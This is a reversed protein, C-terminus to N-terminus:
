RCGGFPAPLEGQDFGYMYSRGKILFPPKYCRSRRRDDHWDRGEDFYVIEPDDTEAHDALQEAMRGQGVIIRKYGAPSNVVLNGFSDAYARDRRSGSGAEASAGITMAAVILPLIPSFGSRM